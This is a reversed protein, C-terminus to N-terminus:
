NARQGEQWAFREQMLWYNIGARGREIRLRDEEEHDADSADIFPNMGRCGDHADQAAEWQLKSNLLDLITVIPTLTYATNASQPIIAPMTLM